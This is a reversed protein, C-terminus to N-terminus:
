LSYMTRRNRDEGNMVFNCIPDWKDGIQASLKDRRYDSYYEAMKRWDRRMESLCTRGEVRKRDIYSIHGGKAIGETWVSTM